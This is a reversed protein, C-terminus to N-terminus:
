GGAERRGGGVERRGGGEEWRRGGVELLYAEYLLVSEACSASFCRM